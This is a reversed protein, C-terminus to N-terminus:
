FDERCSMRGSKIKEALKTYNEGFVRTLLKEAGEEILMSGYKGDFRLFKEMIKPRDFRTHRLGVFDLRCTMAFLTSYFMHTVYEVYDPGADKPLKVPNSVCCELIYAKEIVDLDSSDIVDQIYDFPKEPFMEAISKLEFDLIVSATMNNIDVDTSYKDSMSRVLKFPIKNIDYVLREFESIFVETEKIWSEWLKEYENYCAHAIGMVGLNDMLSVNLRFPDSSGLINAVELSNHNALIKKWLNMRFSVYGSYNITPVKLLTKSKFHREIWTKPQKSEILKNFRDEFDGVADFCKDLIAKLDTVMKELSTLGDEDYSRLYLNCNLSKPSRSIKIIDQQCSNIIEELKKDDPYLSQLGVLIYQLLDSGLSVFKVIGEDSTARCGVDRLASAMALAYRYKDNDENISEIYHYLDMFDIRIEITDRYYLLSGVCLDFVNNFLWHRDGLEAEILGPYRKSIELIAALKSLKREINADDRSVNTGVALYEGKLFSKVNKLHQESISQESPILMSEYCVANDYSEDIFKLLEKVDKNSSFESQIMNNLDKSSKMLLNKLDMKIEKENEVSEKLSKLAEDVAHGYLEKNGTMAMMILPRAVAVCDCLDESNAYKDFVSFLHGLSDSLDSPDVILDQIKIKFNPKVVHPPVEVRIKIGDIFGQDVVFPKSPASENGNTTVRFHYKKFREVKFCSEKENCTEPCIPKYTGQLYLHIDEGRTLDNGKKDTCSVIINLLNSDKDDQISEEASSTLPRELVFRIIYVMTIYDYLYYILMQMSDIRREYFDVIIPTREKIIHAAGNRFYIMAFLYNCFTALKWNKAGIKERLTIIREAFGMDNDYANDWEFCNMIFKTIHETHLLQTKFKDVSSIGGMNDSLSALAILNNVSKKIESYEKPANDCLSIFLNIADYVDSDSVPFLSWGPLEPPNIEQKKHNIYPEIQQFYVRDQRYINKENFSGYQIENKINSFHQMLFSEKITM